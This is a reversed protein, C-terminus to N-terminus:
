AHVDFGVHMIREAGTGEQPTQFALAGGATGRFTV